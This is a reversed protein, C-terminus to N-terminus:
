VSANKGIFKSKLSQTCASRAHQMADSVHTKVRNWDRERVKPNKQDVATSINIYHLMCEAFDSDYHYDEKSLMKFMKWGWRKTIKEVEKGFTAASDMTGMARCHESFGDELSSTYEGSRLVSAVNTGVLQDVVALEATTAEVTANVVLEHGVFEDEVDDDDFYDNEFNAISNEQHKDKRPHKEDDTDEDEDSEEATKSKGDHQNCNDDSAEDDEESYSSQKVIERRIRKPNVSVQENGHASSHENFIRKHPQGGGRHSMLEGRGITPNQNKYKNRNSVDELAEREDTNVRKSTKKKKAVTIDHENSSKRLLQTDDLRAARNRKEIATSPRQATGYNCKSVLKDAMTTDDWKVINHM